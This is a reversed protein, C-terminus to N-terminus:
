LQDCVINWRRLWCVEGKKEQIETRNSKNEVCFIFLYFYGVFIKLALSFFLPPQRIQRSIYPWGSMPVVAGSAQTEKQEVSVSGSSLLSPNSRRNIYNWSEVPQLQVWTESLEARADRMRDREEIVQSRAVIHWHQCRHNVVLTDRSRNFRIVIVIWCSISINTCTNGFSRSTLSESRNDQRSNQLHFRRFNTSSCFLFEDQWHELKRFIVVTVILSGCRWWWMRSAKTKKKKIVTVM